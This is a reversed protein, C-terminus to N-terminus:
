NYETAFKPQAFVELLGGGLVLKPRPFFSVIKSEIGASKQVCFTHSELVRSDCQVLLPICCNEHPGTVTVCKRYPTPYTVALTFRTWRFVNIQSVETFLCIMIRLIVAFTRDSDIM